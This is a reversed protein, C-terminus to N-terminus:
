GRINEKEKWGGGLTKKKRGAMAHELDCLTGGLQAPKLPLKQACEKQAPGDDVQDQPLAEM